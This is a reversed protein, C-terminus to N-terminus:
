VPAMSLYPSVGMFRMDRDTQIRGSTRARAARIDKNYNELGTTLNEGYGDRTLSAVAGGVRFAQLIAGEVALESAGDRIARAAAFAGEGTVDIAKRLNAIEGPSKIRRLPHILAGARAQVVIDPRIARFKELLKLYSEATHQRNMAKLVRDSGSQGPIHACEVLKPLRGYAEILDQGYGKPHPSTFRVRRIGAVGGTAHGPPGIATTM